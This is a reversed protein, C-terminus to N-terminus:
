PSDMGNCQTCDRLIAENVDRVTERDGIDLYVLPEHEEFAFQLIDPFLPPIKGLHEKDHRPISQKDVHRDRDSTLRSM